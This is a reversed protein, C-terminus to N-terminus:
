WWISQQIFFWWFKLIYWCRNSFALYRVRNDIQSQLLSFSFSRRSSEFLTHLKSSLNFLHFLVVLFYSKYNFIYSCSFGTSYLLSNLFIIVLSLLMSSTSLACSSLRWFGVFILPRLSMRSSASCFSLLFTMCRNSPCTFFEFDWGFWGYSFRRLWECSLGACHCTWSLFNQRSVQDPLIWSELSESHVASQFTIRCHSHTLIAQCQPIHWCYTSTM